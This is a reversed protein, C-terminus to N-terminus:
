VKPVTVKLKPTAQPRPRRFETPTMIDVAKGKGKQRKPDSATPPEDEDRGRKSGATAQTSGSDSSISIPSSETLSEERDCVPATPPEESNRNLEVPHDDDSRPLYIEPIVNM